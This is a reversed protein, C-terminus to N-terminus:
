FVVLPEVEGQFVYARGLLDYVAGTAPNVFGGYWPLEIPLQPPPTNTFQLQIGLRDTEALLICYQQSDDCAQDLQVQADTLTRLDNKQIDSLYTVWTIRKNVRHLQSEGLLLGEFRQEIIQKDASDPIFFLTGNLLISAFTLLIFLCMVLVLRALNKKLMIAGCM